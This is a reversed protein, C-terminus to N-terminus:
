FFLSFSYCIFLPIEHTSEVALRLSLPLANSAFKGSIVQRSYSISQPSPSARSLALPSFTKKMLAAAAAVTLAYIWM